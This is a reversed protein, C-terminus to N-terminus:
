NALTNLYSVIGEINKIMSAAGIEIAKMPMGFVASSKKDQAITAAGSEKMALLGKAGDAGMGTLIIGIASGGAVEAVSNFLFDVSPKFRGTGVPESDDLIVYFGSRDRGMRLHINGPAIFATGDVIRDDQKAESVRIRSFRNVREAFPGTFEVPMHQVVLIGPLTDPLRTLISFLVEVGGTSAGIAVIRSSSKGTVSKHVHNSVPIPQPKLFGRSQAAARIKGHLEDSFHLLADKTCIETYTPKLVFDVAGAGMIGAARKLAESSHGSIVVVPVPNESILDHLFELYDDGPINVDLTVVDPRIMKIKKRAFDFNLATGVVDIDGASMLVDSLFKRMVASHDVVLVNIKNM